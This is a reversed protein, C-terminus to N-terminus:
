LEQMCPGVEGFIEGNIQGDGRKMEAVDEFGSIWWLYSAGVGCEGFGKGEIFIGLVGEVNEFEQLRVWEDWGGCGKDKGM